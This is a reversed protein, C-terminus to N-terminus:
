TWGSNKEGMTPTSSRESRSPPPLFTQLANLYADVVRTRDFKEEVIKRVTGDRNRVIRGYGRPCELNTTLVTAAVSHAKRRRILEDLTETRLLPADGVTVLVNGQFNKLFPVVQKVAHGTGLRETQEVCQVESYPAEGAAVLAAHRAEIHQQVEAAMHGTVVFIKDPKLSDISELCHDIMPQGAVRHLVKPLNSHMRTGQGAALIIAILNKM